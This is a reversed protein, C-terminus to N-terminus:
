LRTFLFKIWYLVKEDLFVVIHERKTTEEIDNNEVLDDIGKSIVNWLPTIEFKVYPHLM